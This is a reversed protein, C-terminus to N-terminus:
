KKVCWEIKTMLVKDSRHRPLDEGGSVWVTAGDSVTAHSILGEPLHGYLQYTKAEPDYFYCESLFRVKGSEAVVKGHGGILLIGNGFPVACSSYASVPMDPLKTWKNNNPDYAWASSTHPINKNDKCGSDSLGGFIFICGKHFVSAFMIRGGDPISGVKRWSTESPYKRWMEAHMNDVWDSTGSDVINM